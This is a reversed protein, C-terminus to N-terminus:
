RQQGVGDEGEETNLKAKADNLFDDMTKTTRGAKRLEELQAKVDEFARRVRCLTEPPNPEAAPWCALGLRPRCSGIEARM